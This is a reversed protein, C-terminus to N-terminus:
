FFDEYDDCSSSRFVSSCFSPSLDLQLQPRSEALQRRWAEAATRDESSSTYLSLTLFSQIDSGSGTISLEQLQSFRSLVRPVTLGKAGDVESWFADCIDRSNGGISITSGAQLVGSYGEGALVVAPALRANGSLIGGWSSCVDQVRLRDKEELLECVRLLLEPPLAAWGELAM